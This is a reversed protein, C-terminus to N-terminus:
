SPHPMMQSAAARSDFALAITTGGTTSIYSTNTHRRGNTGDSTRCNTGPMNDSSRNNVVIPAPRGFDAAHARVHVQPFRCMRATSEIM